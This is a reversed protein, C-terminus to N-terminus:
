SFMIINSSPKIQCMIWLKTGGGAVIEVGQWANIIEDGMSLSLSHTGGNIIELGWHNLQSLSNVGRCVVSQCDVGM